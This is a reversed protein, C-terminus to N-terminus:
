GPLLLASDGFEHWLYGGSVAGDYAAQALARGAVAEVLLLHSAQPDHWGTVLGDVVRPPDAPSVVRETWGSTAVVREGGPVAEVASELARTATTGVAVVRRGAARATAVARATEPPVRFWEPGPAEGAEQSSLGTHLTVRALVVGAAQLRAVLGPTFPRAASAMEASGPHRAFVTQYASLPYRADLYGYAIPRGRTALEDDLGGAAEAQWLRNGAGTPSSPDRPWPALLRLAADGCQVLDGVRGDLIPREAYPATRLELVRSGDELRAGLHVVVPRGDLTGDLEGPVTASDNVVLVDGPHLHQDLDRFRAHRLGAGTGVLLRVDDRRLGRWEAPRPAFEAAEFSVQPRETLAGM